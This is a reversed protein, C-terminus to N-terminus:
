QTARDLAESYVQLLIMDDSWNIERLNELEVPKSDLECAMCGAKLEEM